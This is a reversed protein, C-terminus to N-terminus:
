LIGKIYKADQTYKEIALKNLYSDRLKCQGCFYDSYTIPMIKHKHFEKFIKQEQPTRLMAQVKTSIASVKSQTNTNLAVKM